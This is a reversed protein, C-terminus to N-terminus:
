AADAELQGILQTHRSLAVQAAERVFASQDNANAIRLAQVVEITGTVNGLQQAASALRKETQGYHLDAIISKVLDHQNSMDYGRKVVSSPVQHM